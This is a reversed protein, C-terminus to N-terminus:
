RARQQGGHGAGDKGGARRGRECGRGYGAAGGEFITLVAAHWARHGAAIEPDELIPRPEGPRLGRAKAPGPTTRLGGTPPTPNHKRAYHPHRSTRRPFTSDPPNM